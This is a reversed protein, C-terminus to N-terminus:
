PGCAEAGLSAATSAKLERIAAILEANVPDQEIQEFVPRAAEEFAAVQEDSALVIAGYDACWAAAADAERPHEAIAKRQVAAGAERLVARQEDSLAEFAAANAFIVQYKPFFVVNGTATLTGSLSFGQRLGSEAGEYGYDAFMPTAGLAEMLANSIGSPITRINMGIFDEPSLLTEGPVVSFPHRLDEPWLTLGTVGSATMNELMRTGIDSTAVAEALADDTILFPAQLADLSTVGALNFVRSAALGLEFTGAKVLEVVGAEYGAATTNGADWTPEITIAGNSLTSAQDIFETVYPDVTRGQQDPIAFRLTIPEIQSFAWPLALAVSLALRTFTSTIKM